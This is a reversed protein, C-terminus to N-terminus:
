SHSKLQGLLEKRQAQFRNRDAKSRETRKEFDDDLEAIALILAERSMPQSRHGEESDLPISRRYGWVGIGGLLAALLLGIWAAPLEFQSGLVRGQIEIDQINLGEYTRFVNGPELEVPMAPVLPPFTAQPGPERILVEMRNTTGPLPISFDDKSINYRILFFQEGPPLPSYVEFRGDTFRFADPSIDSQGMEFNNSGEPLPYSWVVDEEPSFITREEGQVVQLFDTAEWGDEVKNLFLSRQVLLLDAGGAPVSLTDYAQILYLSDLQMPGTIAPGFYLIERYRVSAFYVESEVGHAPVRPLTLAFTGDAAAQISDIEGSLAPSVQHLIVMAGSLPESGAMVQGNIIPIVEEQALVKLPLTLTILFLGVFFLPGHRRLGGRHLTMDVRANPASGKGILM